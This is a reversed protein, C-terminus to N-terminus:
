VSGRVFAELGDCAAGVGDERRVAEGAWAARERYEGSRLLAQLEAAVRDARYSGRAVTRAVGLRVVRAANDPQDHSFPVVIMPRGSRLAQATTGVGGQHVTAAAHPLLESYPAYEAVFVSEPLPRAPKNRPDVGTLLVARVGALRAAEASEIYFGRADFVASSGLTFVVPPPGAALFRRLDDGMGAAPDLRDYFPFGTITVNAPWDPQPKAWISTFWAQMGWPSFMSDFIPSFPLAPLGLKARLRAIPEGRRRAARRVMRFFAGWFGPGAGRILEAFPIPIRPPDFASLMLSPALAISIWPKKAVEAAIPTAFAIPHSVILDAERAAALTDYSAELHPLFMKTIVYRTGTRPHMAKRMEAPHDLVGSLDPRVAHFGLGEGEVKARYIESTALVVSHGRARLGKGVAIYPHLDGLSGFTTLLVKV